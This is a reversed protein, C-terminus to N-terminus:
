KTEPTTTTKSLGLARRALSIPLNLELLRDHFEGIRYTKGAAEVKKKYDARLALIQMRGLAYYLYTPNYTGRTSERQAPFKAFYAIKQYREVVKDMPVNYVHLALGAYWRAHRQLARRLQGIRVKPDAGGLGEDVMMQETYHAWGEVWSGTQFVKRLDSTARKRFLLQVFHGPMAEHVSIGLLGPHNFYTLHQHKKADSWDPAVNTINYYAATSEPEFPGPVSVSAFGSRAYEPTPRVIPLSDTPLTVIKKDVVLKKAQRVYKDATPILQEPTPHHKVIDAIVEAASKKDDIQAAVKTIWATYRKIAAENMDRLQDITLSIHEEYRLKKELVKRGLRFDGSAKPLIDKELWLAFASVARVAEAHAAKWEARTKDSVKDLGQAALAKQLDGTLFRIVGKVSKLGLTAYIKPVGKLNARASAILAKFGNVRAILSTLRAELPAFKNDVLSSIAGGLLYAYSMPNRQWSRVDQLELLEAQIAHEMLQFDYVGDAPLGTTSLARLQKLQEDLVGVRKTISVSDLQPLQADHSHIGLSTARIPHSMYYSLLFSKSLKAFRETKAPLPVEDGVRRSSQNGGCAAAVVAIALASVTIRIRAAAAFM